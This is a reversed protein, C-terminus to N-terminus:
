LNGPVLCCNPSTNQECCFCPEHELGHALRRHLAQLIWHRAHLRDAELDEADDGLAADHGQGRLQGGKHGNDHACGRLRVWEHHTTTTTAGAATTTTTTTIQQQSKNNYALERFCAALPPSQSRSSGAMAAVGRSTSTSTSTSSSSSGGRRSAVNNTSNISGKVGRHTPLYESENMANGDCAMPTTTVVDSKRDVAYARALVRCGGEVDGRRGEVGVQTRTHQWRVLLVPAGCGATGPCSPRSCASPSPWTRLM